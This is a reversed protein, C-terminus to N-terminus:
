QRYFEWILRTITVYNEINDIAPTQCDLAEQNVPACNILLTTMIATVIKLLKDFYNPRLVQSKLPFTEPPNSLIETLILTETPPDVFSQKIQINGIQSNGKIKKNFWRIKEKNTLHKQSWKFYIYYNKNNNDRVLLCCYEPSLKQKEM